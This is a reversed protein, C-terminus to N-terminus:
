LGHCDSGNNIKYMTTLDFSSGQQLRDGGEQGGGNIREADRRMLM